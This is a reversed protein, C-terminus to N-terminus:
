IKGLSLSKLLNIVATHKALHGLPHSLDVAGITDLFHHAVRKV